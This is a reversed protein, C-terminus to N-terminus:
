NLDIDELQLRPFLPDGVTIRSGFPLQGWQVLARLNTTAFVDGLGLRRWVEMSTEPMVPAFLAAAIRIAELNNYLVFALRDRQTPLAAPAPTTPSAAPAPALAAAAPAPSTAATLVIEAETEAEAEALKAISWPASEELYLNARSVLEQVAAMAGSYNVAELCARYREYLGSAMDALPNGMGGALEVVLADQLEPLVGGFYKQTMTFVRSCLNGWNNALDANYVQTMRELSIAGDAGFQVDSLFYYRYASVGFLKALKLPSAANGRSKSMKEGKTLLFGHAFVKMPLELGAAMLMAPWIVCHFRLIDKGVFQLQAPWRRAFTTQDAVDDSGYGIATVYNLLADFWVYSVHGPAFTIPVGWDFTTRSISLDKLGSRVFSVVENRRTEPCIFDPNAEYHALLRDQFASLRFFLNKEEIYKLPRKCEPCVWMGDQKENEDLEEEPYFTEEHVCYWDKYLGEYIYGNERVIEFFRQVGKLHRPETTRIFDNNTIGLATWADKFKPAIEDVWQQPTAGAAEASQAVKQGHEDLGTLFWTDYGDMRMARAMTDAAITTYATGLHPLGNVYYIPTCLYFSKREVAPNPTQAPSLDAQISAQGSAPSPTQAPSSNLIQEVAPSNKQDTAM